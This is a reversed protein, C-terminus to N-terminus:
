AKIVNCKKHIHNMSTQHHDDCDEGVPHHLTHRGSTVHWHGKTHREAVTASSFSSDNRHVDPTRESLQGACLSPMKSCRRPKRGASYLPKCTADTCKSPSVNNQIWTYIRTSQIASEERGGGKVDKQSRPPSALSGSLPEHEAAGTKLVMQKPWPINAWCKEWM